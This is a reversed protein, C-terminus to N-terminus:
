YTIEYKKRKEEIVNSKGEIEKLKMAFIGWEALKRSNVTSDLRIYKM